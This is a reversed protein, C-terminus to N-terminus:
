KEGMLLPDTYQRMAHEQPQSRGADDAQVAVAITARCARRGGLGTRSCMMVISSGGGSAAIPGSSGGM